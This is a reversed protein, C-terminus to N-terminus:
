CEDCFEEGDETSMFGTGNCRECKIPDLERGIIGNIKALIETTEINSTFALDLVKDRLEKLTEEKTLQAM